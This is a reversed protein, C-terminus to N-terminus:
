LVCLALLLLLNIRTLFNSVSMNVPLFQYVFSNKQIIVPTLVDASLLM